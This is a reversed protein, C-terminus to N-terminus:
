LRDAAAALAALDRHLGRLEACAAGIRAALAALPPDDVDALMDALLWQETLPDDLGLVVRRLAARVDLLPEAVAVMLPCGVLGV